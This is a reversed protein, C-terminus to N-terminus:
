DPVLFLVPELGGGMLTWPWSKASHLPAPTLHPVRGGGGPDGWQELSCPNKCIIDNLEVM